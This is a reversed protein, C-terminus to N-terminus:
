DDDFLANRGKPKNTAGAKSQGEDFFLNKLGKSERQKAELTRPEDSFLKLSSIDPLQQTYSDNVASSNMSDDFLGKKKNMKFKDMEKLGSLLNLPNPGTNQSLNQGLNQTLNKQGLNQTAPKEPQTFSSNASDDGFLNNKKLNLLRCL